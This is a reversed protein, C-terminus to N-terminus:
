HYGEVMEMFCVMRQTGSNGLIQKISTMLTILNQHQSMVKFFSQHLRMKSSVNSGQLCLYISSGNKHYKEMRLVSVEANLAIHRILMHAEIYFATMRVATISKWQYAFISSAHTHKLIHLLYYIELLFFSVTFSISCNILRKSALGQTVPFGHSFFQLLM